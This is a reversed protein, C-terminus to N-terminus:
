HAALYADIVRQAIRGRESVELGQEVAWARVAALDPGSRRPSPAPGRAPKSRRGRSGGTVKTSAAIWPKLAKELATRNKRSLDISYATGDYSFQVTQANPSGDIDDVVIVTKAM